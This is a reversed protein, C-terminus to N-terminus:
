ETIFGIPKDRGKLEKMGGVDAFAVRPTLM